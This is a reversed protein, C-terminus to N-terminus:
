LLTKETLKNPTKAKFCFKGFFHQLWKETTVRANKCGYYTQLQPTCSAKQEELAPDSIILAAQFWGRFMETRNKHKYFCFTYNGVLRWCVKNTGWLQVTRSLQLLLANAADDGPVKRLIKCHHWSDLLLGIVHTRVSTHQGAGSHGHDLGWEWLPCEGLLDANAQLYLLARPNIYNM